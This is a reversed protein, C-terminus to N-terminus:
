SSSGAWAAPPPSTRAWACTSSAPRIATPASRTPTPTWGEAADSDAADVRQIIELKYPQDAFLELGEEISHEERTFAQDDKVISQMRSEIRALDDESFHAGGPLEFDYYFGDDIPPGIAYRAGPWLQTVAQALVHATSHRLVHRGEQSDGTVVSVHARRAASPQSRRDEM